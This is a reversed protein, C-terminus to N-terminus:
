LFLDYIPTQANCCSLFNHQNLTVCFKFFFYEVTKSTGEFKPSSKSCGIYCKLPKLMDPANCPLM